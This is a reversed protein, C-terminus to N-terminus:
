PWRVVSLDPIRQFHALDNTVLTVALAMAHAVILLDMAGFAQGARELEHRVRGNPTPCSAGDYDFVEFPTL